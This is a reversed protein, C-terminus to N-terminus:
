NTCSWISVTRYTFLYGRAVDIVGSAVRRFSCASSRTRLRCIFRWLYPCASHLYVAGWKLGPGIRDLKRAGINQAVYSSLGSAFSMCCTLAVPQRPKGGLIGRYRDCRVPQHLVPHGCQRGICLEATHISPVAYNTLRRLTEPAFLVFHHGTDFSRVRCLLLVFALVGSAGQAIFTAMCCWCRGLQLGAAANGVPSLM